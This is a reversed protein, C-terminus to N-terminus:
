GGSEAEGVAVAALEGLTDDLAVPALSSAAVIKEDVIREFCRTADFSARKAKASSTKRGRGFRRRM